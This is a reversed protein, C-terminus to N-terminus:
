WRSFKVKTIREAAGGVEPQSSPDAVCACANSTRDRLSPATSVSVFPLRKLTKGLIDSSVVLM